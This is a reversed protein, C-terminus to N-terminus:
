ARSGWGRPSRATCGGRLIKMECARSRSRPDDGCAAIAFDEASSGSLARGFRRPKSRSCSPPVSSRTPPLPCCLQLVAYNNPQNVLHLSRHIVDRRDASKFKHLYVHESTYTSQFHKIPLEVEKTKQSSRKKPSNEPNLSPLSKDGMHQCKKKGHRDHSFFFDFLIAAAKM